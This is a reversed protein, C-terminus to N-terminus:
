IYSGRNEMYVYEGNEGNLDMRYWEYNKDFDDSQIFLFEGQLQLSYGTEDSSIVQNNLGDTKMNIVENFNNLYYIQDGSVVMYSSEERNLRTSTYQETSIDLSYIYQTSADIYYLTNETCVLEYVLGRKIDRIEETSLDYAHIGASTTYYLTDNVIQLNYSPEDNIQRTEKTNLNYHFISENITDNQYYIDDGNVCVYFANEELVLSVEHTNLDMRFTSNNQKEDKFYLYQDHVQLYSCVGDYIVEHHIMQNDFKVIDGEDNVMYISTGDDCIYGGNKLNSILAENNKETIFDGNLNKYDYKEYYDKQLSDNVDEKSTNKLNLIFLGFLVVSLVGWVVGNRKRRNKSNDNSKYDNHIDEYINHTDEYITYTAKQTREEVKMGCNPCYRDEEKLETDCFRCKM